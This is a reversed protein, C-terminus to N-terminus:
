QRSYNFSPVRWMQQQPPRWILNHKDLVGRNLPFRDEQQWFVMLPEVPSRVLHRKAKIMNTFHKNHLALTSEVSNRDEIVCWYKVKLHTAYDNLPTNACKKDGWQKFDSDLLTKSGSPHQETQFITPAKDFLKPYQLHWRKTQGM